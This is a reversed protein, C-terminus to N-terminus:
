LRCTQKSDRELALQMGAKVDGSNFTGNAIALYNDNEEVTLPRRFIKPALDNVLQEACTRDITDCSLAPVFDKDASWQALEEAVLLYNNYATSQVTARTNNTFFGVKTDASLGDSVTYDVGLLDEVTNQYETQTLVKLQRAGYAIPTANVDCFIEGEWLTQIYAAVDEACQQDCEGANGYPMTNVIIDTMAAVDRETNLAPFSGLGGGETGHCGACQGAYIEIGRALQETETVTVRQIDTPLSLVSNNVAIM